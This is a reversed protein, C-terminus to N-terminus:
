EFCSVQAEETQRLLLDEREKAAVVEQLCHVGVESSIM